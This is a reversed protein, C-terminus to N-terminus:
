SIQRVITCGVARYQSAPWTPEPFAWMTSTESTKEPTPPRFNLPLTSEHDRRAGCYSWDGCYCWHLHHLNRLRPSFELDILEADSLSEPDDSARSRRIQAIVSVCRAIRSQRDDKTSRM